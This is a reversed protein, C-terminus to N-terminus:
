PAPTVPTIVVNVCNRHNDLHGGARQCRDALVAREGGICDGLLTGAGFMAFVMIVLLLIVLEYNSRIDRVRMRWEADIREEKQTMM